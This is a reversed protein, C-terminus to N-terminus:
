VAVVLLEHDDGTRAVDIQVVVEFGDGEVLKFREEALIQFLHELFTALSSSVPQLLQVRRLTPAQQTHELALMSM